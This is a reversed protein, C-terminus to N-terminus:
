PDGEPVGEGNDIVSVIMETQRFRLPSRDRM